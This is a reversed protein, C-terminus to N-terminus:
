LSEDSMNYILCFFILEAAKAMVQYWTMLSIGISGNSALLKSLLILM